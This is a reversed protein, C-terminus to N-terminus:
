RRFWGEIQRPTSASVIFAADPRAVMAATLRQSASAGPASAERLVGHLIAARDPRPSAASSFREQDVLGIAFGAPLQGGTGGGYAGIRGSAQWDALRDLAMPDVILEAPEHLLLIDIRRRLLRESRDLSRQAIDLDLKRAPARVAYNPPPPQLMRKLAPARSLLPRAFRRYARQPLSMAVPEGPVEAGVKTAVTVDTVGALVDGLLAESTGLGYTPATDFHRIGLRLATEILRGSARAEAGGVIRACGLGLWSKTVLTGALDLTQRRM